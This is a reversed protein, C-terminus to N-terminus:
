KTVSFNRTIIEPLDGVFGQLFYRNWTLLFPVVAVNMPKTRTERDSVKFM